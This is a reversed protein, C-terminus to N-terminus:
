PLHCPSSVKQHNGVHDEGDGETRLGGKEYYNTHSGVREYTHIRELEEPSEKEKNDHSSGESQRDEGNSADHFQSKAPHSFNTAPQETTAAAASNDAPASM